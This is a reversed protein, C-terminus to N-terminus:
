KSQFMFKGLLEEMNISSQTILISDGDKLFEEDGGPEISIFKNGLLGSSVIKASSDSPLLIDDNINLILVAKYTQQDLSQSNVTGIKIGSIKVESGNGIEGINEFQTKIQYSNSTSLNAQKFSFVFFYAACLIVFTGVAVEFLNNKM